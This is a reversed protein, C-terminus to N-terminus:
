QLRFAGGCRGNRGALRGGRAIRERAVPQAHPAFFAHRTFQAREEGQLGVASHAIGFLQAPGAVGRLPQGLRPTPVAFAGRQHQARHLGVTRREIKAVGDVDVPILDRTVRALTQPKRSWVTHLEVCPAHRGIEAQGPLPRLTSEFPPWASCCRTAALFPSCPASPLHRNAARSSWVCRFAWSPCKSATRPWYRNSSRTSRKPIGNPCRAHRPRLTPWCRAHTTTSTHKCCSPM